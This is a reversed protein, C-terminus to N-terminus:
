RGTVGVLPESNPKAAIDHSRPILREPLDFRSNRVAKDVAVPYSIIQDEPCPQLHEM